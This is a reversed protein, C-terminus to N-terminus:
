TEGKETGRTPPRSGWKATYLPNKSPLLHFSLIRSFHSPKQTILPITHAYHTPPNARYTPLNVRPLRFPIQAALPFTNARFTSLYEPRGRSFGGREQFLPDPAAPCVRGRSPPTKGAAGSESAMKSFDLGRSFGGRKGVTHIWSPTRWM